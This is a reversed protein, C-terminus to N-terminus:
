FITLNQFTTGLFTVLFTVLLAVLAISKPNIKTTKSAPEERAANVTTEEEGTECLM